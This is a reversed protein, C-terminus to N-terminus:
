PLPLDYGLYFGAVLVAQSDATQVVLESGSIFQLDNTGVKTREGEGCLADTVRFARRQFFGAM